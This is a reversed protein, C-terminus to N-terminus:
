LGLFERAENYGDLYEQIPTDPRRQADTLMVYRMAEALEAQQMHQTLYQEHGETARRYSTVIAQAQPSLKTTGKLARM